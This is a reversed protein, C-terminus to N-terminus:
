EAIDSLITTNQLLSDSTIVASGDDATGVVVVQHQETTNDNYIVEVYSVGGKDVVASQPVYYVTGFDQVEISATIGMGIKAKSDSGITLTVNYTLNGNEDKDDNPSDAVKSVTAGIETDPLSESTITAEQGRSVASVSSEPVQVIGVLSDLDAIQLAAGQANLNAVTMGKEAQLNVVTGSEGAKVTLLAVQELASDYVDKASDASSKASEYSAKTSDVSSQATTIADDYKSDVTVEASESSTDASEGAAEEEGEQAEEAAAEQQKALKKAAKEAAKLAAKKNKEATKLAALASKYAAYTKSEYAAKSNYDKKATEANKTVTANKITLLVDGKSVKDGEEVKVSSVTGDIEPSVSSSKAARIEGACSITTAYSSPTLTTKEYEEPSKVHGAFLKTFLFAGGGFLVAAAVVVAILIAVMQSNRKKEQVSPTSM